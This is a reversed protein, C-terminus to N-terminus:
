KIAPAVLQQRYGIGPEGDPGFAHLFDGVLVTNRLPAMEAEIAIHALHEVARAGGVPSGSYGVFAAPKNRFAFSVFVSDIGEGVKLFSNVVLREQFSPETPQTSCSLWSIVCCSLAIPFLRLNSNM